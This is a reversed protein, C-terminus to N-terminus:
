SGVPKDMVHRREHIVFRCHHVIPLRSANCHASSSLLGALLLRVAKCHVVSSNRDYESGYTFHPFAAQVRALAYHMADDALFM